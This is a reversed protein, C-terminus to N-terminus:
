PGAALKRIQDSADSEDAVPTQLNLRHWHNFNMPQSSAASVGFSAAEKVRQAPSKDSLYRVSLANKNLHLYLRNGKYVYYPQTQALLTNGACLIAILLLLPHLRRKRPLRSM